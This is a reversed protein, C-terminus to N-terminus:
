EKVCRVPVAWEPMLTTCSIGVHGVDWHTVHVHINNKRETVWNMCFKEQVVSNPTKGNGDRVMAGAGPFFISAYNYPNVMLIGKRAMEPGSGVLDSKDDDVPDPAHQDYFGDAYRGYAYNGLAAYNPNVLSDLSPVKVDWYLSHVWEAMDAQRYGPPCAERGTNWEGPISYDMYDKNAAVGLLFAKTRNWQFFYGIRSPYDAFVGGRHGLERGTKLTNEQPDNLAFPAFKMARARKGQRPDEPRYLYDAEEGQRVYFSATGDKKQVSILGYRPAAGAPLTGKMGVRFKINGTGSLVGGSTEQVEGKYAGKNNGDIKIWAIGAIVRVTWPGDHMVHIYREGTENNRHFSGAYGERWMAPRDPAQYVDFEAAPLYVGLTSVVRLRGRPVENVDVNSEKGTMVHFVGPVIGAGSGSATLLTANTMTNGATFLGGATYSGAVEVKWGVMVDEVNEVLTLAHESRSEPKMSTYVRNMNWQLRFGKVDGTGEHCGIDTDGNHRPNGDIDLKHAAALLPTADDFAAKDGRGLLPSRNPTLVHPAYGPTGNVNFHPGPVANLASFWALNVVNVPINGKGALPV